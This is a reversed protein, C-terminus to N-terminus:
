AFLEYNLINFSELIVRFTDDLSASGGPQAGSSGYTDDRANMSIVVDARHEPIRIVALRVCVHDPAAAGKKRVDFEGKLSAVTHGAVLSEGKLASWSELVRSSLAANADMLDGFFFEAAKADPVHQYELVEIIVSISGDDNVFAEQQDPVVLINSMDDLYSPIECSM